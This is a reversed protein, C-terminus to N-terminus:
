FEFYMGSTKMVVSKFVIRDDPGFSLQAGVETTASVIIELDNANQMNKMDSSKFSARFEVPNLMNGKDDVFKGDKDLKLTQVPLKVVTNKDETNDLVNFFVKITVNKLSIKTAGNGNDIVFLVEVKEAGEYFFDKVADGSFVDKITDSVAISGAPLELSGINLNELGGLEIPDVNLMLPPIPIVAGKDIDDFDKDVCSQMSFFAMALVLLSMFIQKM